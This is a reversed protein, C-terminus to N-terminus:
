ENTLVADINREHHTPPGSLNGSMSYGPCLTTPSPVEIAIILSGDHVGYCLRNLWTYGAASLEDFRREYDWPKRLQNRRVRYTGDASIRSIQSIEVIRM